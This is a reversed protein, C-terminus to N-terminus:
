ILSNLLNGQQIPIVLNNETTINEMAFILKYSFNIYMYLYFWFQDFCFILGYSINYIM